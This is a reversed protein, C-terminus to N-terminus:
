KQQKFGTERLEPVVVYIVKYMKCVEYLMHNNHRVPIETINYPSDVDNV